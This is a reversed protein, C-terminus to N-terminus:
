FYKKQVFLFLYSVLLKLFRKSVKVFMMLYIQVWNFFEINYSLYHSCDLMFQYWVLFLLLAGLTRETLSVDTNQASNLTRQFHHHLIIATLIIQALDSVNHSRRFYNQRKICLQSLEIMINVIVFGTVVYCLYPKSTAM